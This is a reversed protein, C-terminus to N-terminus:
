DREWRLTRATHPNLFDRYVDQLNHPETYAHSVNFSVFDSFHTGDNSCPNDRLHSVVNARLSSASMNPIGLHELQYSIAHFLCKGDGPVDHLVFGHQRVLTVLDSYATDVEMAFEGENIVSRQPNVTANNTVADHAM